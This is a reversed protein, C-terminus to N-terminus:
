VGIFHSNGGYAPGAGRKVCHKLEAAVRAWVGLM